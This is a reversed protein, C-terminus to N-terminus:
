QSMLSLPLIAPIYGRWHYETYFTVPLNNDIQTSSPNEIQIKESPEYMEQLNQSPYSQHMPCSYHTHTVM